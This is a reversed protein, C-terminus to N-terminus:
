AAEDTDGKGKGPKHKENYNRKGIRLVIAPIASGLLALGIGVVPNITTAFASGALVSAETAYAAWAAPKNYFSGGANERTLRKEIKDIAKDIEYALAMHHTKVEPLAKIADLDGIVGITKIMEFAVPGIREEVATKLLMNQIAARWGEPVKKAIKRFEKAAQARTENNSSNIHETASPLEILLEKNGQEMAIGLAQMLINKREVLSPGQDYAPNVTKAWANVNRKLINERNAKEREKKPLYREFLHVLEGEYVTALFENAKDKIGQSIANESVKELHVLIIEKGNVNRVDTFLRELKEYAYDYEMAIGALARSFVDLETTETERFSRCSEYINEVIKPRKGEKNVTANVAIDTFVYALHDLIAREITFGNKIRDLNTLGEEFMVSDCKKLVAGIASIANVKTDENSHRDAIAFLSRLASYRLEEAVHKNTAVDALYETNVERAAQQIDEQTVLKASILAAEGPPFDLLIKNLYPRVAGPYRQNLERLRATGHKFRAEDRSKIDAEVRAMTTELVRGFAAEANDSTVPTAYESKSIAHLKELAELRELTEIALRNTRQSICDYYDRGAFTAIHDLADANGDKYQQELGTLKAADVEDLKEEVNEYQQGDTGWLPQACNVLADRDKRRALLNLIATQEETSATGFRRVLPGSGSRAYEDELGVASFEGAETRPPIMGPLAVPQWPPPRPMVSPPPPLREEAPRPGSGFTPGREVVPALSPVEAEPVGIKRRIREADDNKGLREYLDAAEALFEEGELQRALRGAEYDDRSTDQALFELARRYTPNDSIAPVKAEPINRRIREADDNKGLRECIDAAEAFHGERELRIARTEARADGQTTDQALLDLAERYIPNDSIAPRLRAPTEEAPAEDLIDVAELEQTVRPASPVASLRTHAERALRALESRPPDHESHTRAIRELEYVIDEKSVNANALRELASIAEKANDESLLFPSMRASNALDVFANTNGEQAREEANKIGELDIKAIAATVTEELAGFTKMYIDKLADRDKEGALFEVVERKRAESTEDKLCLDVLANAGEMQYINSVSTIELYAARAYEALGDNKGKHYESVELLIADTDLFSAELGKIKDIALKADAEGQGEIEMQAYVVLTNLDEAKAIVNAHTERRAEAGALVLGALEGGVRELNSIAWEVHARETIDLGNFSPDSRVKRLERLAVDMPTNEKLAKIAALAVAVERPRAEGLIISSLASFTGREVAERVNEETYHTAKVINEMADAIARVVVSNRNMTIQSNMRLRRLSRLAEMEGSKGIDELAHVAELAIADTITKYERVLGELQELDKKGFARQVEPYRYKPSTDESPPVLARLEGRATLISDLVNQELNIYRADVVLARFFELAQKPPPNTKLAEIAALATQESRNEKDLIIEQLLTANKESVALAIDDNTYKYTPAKAAKLEGLARKVAVELSTFRPDTEIQDILVLIIGKDFKGIKEVARLATGLNRDNIDLIIAKLLETSLTDASKENYRYTPALETVATPVPQLAPASAPPKVDAAPEPAPKAAAIEGGKGALRRLKALPDETQAARLQRLRAIPDEAM